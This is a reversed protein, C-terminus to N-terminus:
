QSSGSSEQSPTDKKKLGELWKSMGTNGPLRLKHAKFRRESEKNKFQQRPNVNAPQQEPNM